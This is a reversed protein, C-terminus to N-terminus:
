LLLTFIHLKKNGVVIIYIQLSIKLYKDSIIKLINQLVVAKFAYKKKTEASGSLVLM